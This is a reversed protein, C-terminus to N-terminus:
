VSLQQKLAAVGVAAAKDAMESVIASTNESIRSAIPSGAEVFTMDFSALGGEQKRESRTYNEVAVRMTGMTPHVLTAPGEQVLARELADADGQYEKGIVYGQVAWRRGRRGLDEFYPIDRKPFEFLIGRRGSAKAGHEVRFEVGRFSAPRWNDRWTM